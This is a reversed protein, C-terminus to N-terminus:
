CKSMFGYLHIVSVAFMDISQIPMEIAQWIERNRSGTKSDRRGFVVVPRDRVIDGGTLCKKLAARRASQSSCWKARASFMEM